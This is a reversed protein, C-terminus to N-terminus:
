YQEVYHTDSEGYGCNGKDHRDTSTSISSRANMLLDLIPESFVIGISVHAANSIGDRELHM